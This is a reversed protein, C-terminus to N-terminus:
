YHFNADHREAGKFKKIYWNQATAHYKKSMQLPTFVGLHRWSEKSKKERRYVRSAQTTTCSVPIRDHSGRSHIHALPFYEWKYAMFSSPSSFRLRAACKYISNQMMLPLSSELTAVLMAENELQDSAINLELIPMMLYLSRLVVAEKSLHVGQVSTSM